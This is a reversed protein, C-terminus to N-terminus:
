SSTQTIPALRAKFVIRPDKTIQSATLNYKEVAAQLPVLLRQPIYKFGKQAESQWAHYRDLQFHIFKKFDEPQSRVTALQLDSLGYRHLDVRPFYLRGLRSDEDIDRIFNLWQMARGQLKATEFSEEPLGMIRAMMLGVVEASGHTYTLTDELSQFPTFTLDSQMADLFADVWTPDFNYKRTLRIINKIIREDVTDFPSHLVSFSSSRTASEWGQRLAHFKKAQQPVSDVYDDAVRVFSYLRFVDDRIVKPFLKSSFYYTSSAQQFIRDELSKM